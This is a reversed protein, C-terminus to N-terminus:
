RGDKDRQKLQGCAASIDLGKSERITCIFRKDALYKRFAESAEKTPRKFESNEYPNFLILNIKVDIGSLLKGLKQASKID